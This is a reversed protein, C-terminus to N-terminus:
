KNIFKNKKFIHVHRINPISKNSSLNEFYIIEEERFLFDILNYNVDGKFWIILHETNDIFHYPFKNPTIIWTNNDKFLTKALNINHDPHKLLFKKYEEDVDKHRYLRIKPPNKHFQSIYNYDM